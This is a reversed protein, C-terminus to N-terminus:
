HVLSRAEDPRQAGTRRGLPPARPKTALTKPMSLSDRNNELSFSYLRSIGWRMDRYGPTLVVVLVLGRDREALADALLYGPLHIPALITEVDIGLRYLDAPHCAGLAIRHAPFVCPLGGGVSVAGRLAGIVVSVFQM